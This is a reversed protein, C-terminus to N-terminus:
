LGRGPCCKWYYHYLGGGEKIKRFMLDVPMGIRVDAPSCDAVECYIRGGGALDVVAMLTPPFPSPYLEDKAFTFVIGHRALAVEHLQDGRRCGVCVQTVPFQKTGCHLCESGHLRVNQHEEKAYLVNSIELGNDAHRFYDRAKRYQTYSAYSVAASQKCIPVGPKYNRINETVRFLLADAGSGYAAVLIIEGPQASELALSLLVLPMASGTLGVDDFLIDQVQNETLGLKKALQLHSRKDPSALAAKSIQQATLCAQKLASHIVSQM